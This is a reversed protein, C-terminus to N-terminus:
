ALKRASPVIVLTCKSPTKDRWYSTPGRTTSFAHEVARTLSAVVAALMSLTKGLGMDDAIIGGLTDDM